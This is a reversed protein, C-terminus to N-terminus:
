VAHLWFFLAYGCASKRVVVLLRPCSNSIRQRSCSGGGERVRQGDSLRRTRVALGLHHLSRFCPSWVRSCNTVRVACSEERCFLRKGGNCKGVLERQAGRSWGMSYGCLVCMMSLVFYRGWACMSCDGAAHRICKLVAANLVFTLLGLPNKVRRLVKDDPAHPSRPLLLVCYVLTLGLEISHRLMCAMLCFVGCGRAM